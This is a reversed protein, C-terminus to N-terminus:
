KKRETLVNGLEEVARDLVDLDAFGAERSGVGETELKAAAIALQATVKDLNPASSTLQVLRSNPKARRPSETEVPDLM